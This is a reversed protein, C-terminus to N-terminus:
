RTCLLHDVCFSMSGQLPQGFIILSVDRHFWKYHLFPLVCQCFPPLLDPVEGQQVSSSSCNTIKKKGILYKWHSNMSTSSYFFFLLCAVGMTKPHKHCLRLFFCLQFFRRGQYSAWWISHSLFCSWFPLQFLIFTLLLFHLAFHLIHSSRCKIFHEAWFIVAKRDFYTLHLQREVNRGNVALGTGLTGM